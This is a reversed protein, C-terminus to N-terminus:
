RLNDRLSVTRIEIENQLRHHRANHAVPEDNALQREATRVNNLLLKSHARDWTVRAVAVDTASDISPHLTELGSHHLRM